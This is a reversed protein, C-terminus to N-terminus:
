QEYGFVDFDVEQVQGSLRTRRVRIEATGDGVMSTGDRAVSTNPAQPPATAGTVYSRAVLHETTGDWFWVEVKSGRESGDGESGTIFYTLTFTDGNAIVHVTDDTTALDPTASTIAIRIPTSAPPSEPPTLTVPGEIALRHRNNNDLTVTPTLAQPTAEDTQGALLLARTGAPINTDRAVDLAVDLSDVARVAGIRNTGAPLQDTIKKIGDTDKISDLTADITGLKTDAAALTTESARTGLTTESARTGLTTESARTALTAETSLEGTGILNGDEDYITVGQRSKTTSM